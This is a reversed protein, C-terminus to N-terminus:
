VRGEMVSALGEADGPNIPAQIGMMLRDVRFFLGERTRAIRAVSLSM